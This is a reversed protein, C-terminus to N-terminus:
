KKAQKLAETNVMAKSIADSWLKYGTGTLHQGDVTAWQGPTSFTLSDIYSCPAVNAALLSSMQKVRAYTKGYKGGEQGWNPGVWVCKAGTASIEKTLTTVQQWVWSKALTPKTYSAMTDGMVIVVLNAKEASILQKIPVTAGMGPQVKATPTGIREAGGCTGPTVKLWDAANTGCVGMSHVKAGQALFSDQLTAILYNPTAMHSDGIMVVSLGALLLSSM